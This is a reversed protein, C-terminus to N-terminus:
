YLPNSSSYLHIFSFILISILSFFNGKPFRFFIGQDTYCHRQKKSSSPTQIIPTLYGASDYESHCNQTSMHNLALIFSKTVTNQITLSGSKSTSDVTCNSLTITYSSSAYFIYTAKNELICSDQIMTIGRTYIIGESGSGLTNRLINCSKIEYKAGAMYLSICTYVTSNNDVFTSYSLSCTVFNSDLSPNCYIGSRGHCKNMSSNVSPCCNNGYYLYLTFQANTIENVCRSISSYNVYNKNTVGNNMYMYGFQMNYYTTTCCDYGCVENLVCQGNNSNEFYIAGANDSTKCSFFSCSEVLVYQVSNCYLAGGDTTSTIYRFLCDSVHVSTDSLTQGTRYETFQIRTPSGSFFDDWATRFHM